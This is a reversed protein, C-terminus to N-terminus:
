RGDMRFHSRDRDPLLHTGICATQQIRHLHSLGWGGKVSALENLRDVQLRACDMLQKYRPSERDLGAARMSMADLVYTHAWINYVCLADGRKLHPM